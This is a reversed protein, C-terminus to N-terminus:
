KSKAGSKKLPMMYMKAVFYITSVLAIILFGIMPQWILFQSGTANKSGTLLVVAVWFWFNFPGNFLGVWLFTVLGNMLAAVLSGPLYSMHQGYILKAHKRVDKDKEYANSEYMMKQDFNHISRSHMIELMPNPDLSSAIAYGIGTLLAGVIAAASQAGLGSLGVNSTTQQLNCIPVNNIICSSTSASGGFLPGLSGLGALAGLFQAPWFIILKALEQADFRKLRKVKKKFIMYKVSEVVLYSLTSFFTLWIDFYPYFWRRSFIFLFFTLITVFISIYFQNAFNGSVPFRFLLYGLIGFYIWNIIFAWIFYFFIGIFRNGFVKWDEFRDITQNRLIVTWSSPVPSGKDKLQDNNGNGNGDGNGDGDGDGDGNDGIFDVTENNYQNNNSANWVSDTM